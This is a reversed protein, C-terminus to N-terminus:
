KVISSEVRVQITDNVTEVALNFRKKKKVNVDDDSNQHQIKVRTGTRTQLRVPTHTCTHHTIAHTNGQTRTFITINMM